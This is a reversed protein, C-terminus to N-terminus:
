SEGNAVPEGNSEHFTAMAASWEDSKMQEREKTTFAAGGKTPAVAWLAIQDDRSVEAMAEAAREYDNEALASEIHALSARNDRVAKMHKMLKEDVPPAKSSVSANGDDDEPAIGVLAM